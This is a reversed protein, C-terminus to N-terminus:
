DAAKNAILSKLALGGKAVVQDGQKLGATIEVTVNGRRGLTVPRVSFRGDGDPVFVVEKGDVEYIATEPAVIVGRASATDITTRAFMGPKLVHDPNPVEIKARVARTTRDVEDGIYTIRGTFNRNPYAEVTIEALDGTRLGALDHEFINAVVWVRELNIVTLPAPGDRDVIGGIRLDRKVLTGAIPSVLPFESLPHGNATWQVTSLDAPTILLRLKERSAEYEALAADRQARADLLDRMPTIKKAYLDQERKLRQGSIAELSRAKLYETKTEGLEVSSLIVLPDGAKVYQGPQVILKTVRAPIISSIDAVAAADPEVIATAVIRQQMAEHKVPAIVLDRGAQSSPPIQLSIPTATQAAAATSCAVAIIAAIILPTRRKM